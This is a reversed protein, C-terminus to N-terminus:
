EVRKKLFNGFINQSKIVNTFANKDVEKITSIINYVEYSSVVMFLVSKDQRTYAGQAPIITIGRVVRKQIETILKEKHDTVIMLTLKHHRTHIKDIVAASVFINIITYAAILWNGTFGAITIIFLNLVFSYQGVSRDNKYSLYQSIIDMGGTSAGVKLTVGVGIGTFVGGILASLMKDNFFPALQNIPIPLFQLILSASLVSLMSLFTFRRGIGKLGLYFVPANLIFWLLSVPITGDFLKFLLQAIGAFGGTFLGSPIIFWGIGVAYLLSGFITTLINLLKRKDKYHILNKLNNFINNNNM